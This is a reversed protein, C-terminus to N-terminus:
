FSGWNENQGTVTRPRALADDIGLQKARLQKARFQILATLCISPSALQDVIEQRAIEGMERHKVGILRSIERLQETNTPLAM